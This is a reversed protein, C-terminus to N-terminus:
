RNAKFAPLHTTTPTYSQIPQLNRAAPQLNCTAHNANPTGVDGLSHRVLRREANVANGQHSFTVSGQHRLPPAQAERSYGM